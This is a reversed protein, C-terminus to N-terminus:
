LSITLLARQFLSNGFKGNDAVVKQGNQNKHKTLSQNNIVFGPTM